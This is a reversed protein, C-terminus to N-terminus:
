SCAPLALSSLGETLHAQETDTQRRGSLVPVAPVGHVDLSYSSCRAVEREVAERSGVSM